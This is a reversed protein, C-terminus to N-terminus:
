PITTSLQRAVYATIWKKVRGRIEFWEGSYHESSFKDHLWEERSAAGKRSRFGILAICTLDPNDTSMSAFRQDIDATIGVKLLKARPSAVVYVYCDSLMVECFTTAGCDLYRVVM